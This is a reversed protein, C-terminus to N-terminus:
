VRDIFVNISAEFPPTKKKARTLSYNQSFPTSLSPTEEM